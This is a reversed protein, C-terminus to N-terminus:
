ISASIASSPPRSSGVRISGDSNTIRALNARSGVWIAETKDANLQLRRSKCWSNIDDACRSLRSRLTDTDDPRCSDHFQTDDAYLHSQVAHAELLDAIDETYSVFCRPGLVSGQPVSCDVPFSSTQEGKYTFIQTRDTLYSEFWGLVTSDLSFRKALVSLLLQHDVTDFAASLDLLVLLSVRGNDVSRVLGNHVSLLATETSHHPRYASQQVPLLSHMASHEAFRSVVVREILKSIYPLNSIPRYSSAEDPDLTPKKLLPFVRAQKLQAPFVGQELSLNCLRCIVPAICTALQKLLWTPIPDLECTKAATDKLLSIVTMDHVTM